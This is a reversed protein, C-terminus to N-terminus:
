LKRREFIKTNIAPRFLARFGGKALMIGAPFFILANL